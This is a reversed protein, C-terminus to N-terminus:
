LICVYFENNRETEKQNKRNRETEIQIGVTHIGVIKNKEYFNLKQSIVILMFLESGSRCVNVKCVATLM